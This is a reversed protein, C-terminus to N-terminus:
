FHSREKMLINTVSKLVIQRDHIGIGALFKRIVEKASEAKEVSTMIEVEVVLGFDDIDELNVTMDDLQYISRQKTVTFYSKFGITKLILETEEFSDVKTEHEEWANHDGYNTIMKTNLEIVKQEGIIKRRLRLSFSGLENMELEKFTTIGIPCFYVDFLHETGDSIAGKSELRQILSRKQTQDLLARIEVEQSKKVQM